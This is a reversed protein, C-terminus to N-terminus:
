TEPDATILMILEKNNHLVRVEVHVEAPEHDNAPSYYVEEIRPYESAKTEEEVEKSKENIHPSVAPVQNLPSSTSM